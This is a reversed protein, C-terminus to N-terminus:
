RFTTLKGGVVSLLGAIPDRPDRAHDRVSHRRTIASEAGSRSYPLPRVGSYACLVSARCPRAAPLLRNTEHILFESEEATAEICDLDGAYRSDTTAILYMGNWPIIFFPRRDAAAEAYIATAPCGHFPSVVIHSGK